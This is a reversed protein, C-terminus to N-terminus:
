DLEHWTLHNINHIHKCWITVPSAVIGNREYCYFVIKGDFSALAFDFFVHAGVPASMIHVDHAGVRLFVGNDMEIEIARISQTMGKAMKEITGVISVALRENVEKADM